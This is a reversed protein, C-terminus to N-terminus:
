RKNLEKFIIKDTFSIQYYSKDCAFSSFNKYRLTDFVFEENQHHHGECVFDIKSVGIDYKQLKQKIYTYFFPQKKCISKQQQKLLINKSIFNGFTQDILNLLSLPIPNRIIKTYRLYNEDEYLDGHCLSITQNQFHCLLPQKQIPIITVSPFMKQLNFDHNGEFYIIEIEKSLTNILNITKRYHKVTHTVQGVLLDFMDGMLFLQTTKIKHHQIDQLFHYFGDRSANDHADSIFLAGEKIEIM